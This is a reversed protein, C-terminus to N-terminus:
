RCRACAGSQARAPEVIAYLDAVDSSAVLRLVDPLKIPPPQSGYHTVLVYDFNREWGLWYIRGGLGDPIDTTPSAVRYGDLFQALDPPSGSPTSSLRFEPKPEVTMIGSFLTPVFADRDIVAVLSAHDYMSIPAWQFETSSADVTLLRKGKPLASLVERLEAIRGDARQLEDGVLASRVATAVILLCLLSVEFFAGARETTSIAALLLMAALLPLRFDMGAVGLLRIPVCLSFLGVVVFILLIEPNFKLRGTLRGFIVIVLAAVGILEEYKSANFLIPSLITRIREFKTGYITNTVGVFPNEIRVSLALIIAPTAQLAAFM